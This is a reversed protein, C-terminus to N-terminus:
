PVQKVTPKVQADERVKKQIDELLPPITAPKVMWWQQVFVMLLRRLHAISEETEDQIKFDRLLQLTHNLNLWNKTPDFAARIALILKLMVNFSATNLDIRYTGYQVIDSSIPEITTTM